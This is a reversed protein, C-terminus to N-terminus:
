SDLIHGKNYKKVYRKILKKLFFVQLASVTILIGFLFTSPQARGSIGPPDTCLTAVKVLATSTWKSQLNKGRTTFWPTNEVLVGKIYPLLGIVLLM